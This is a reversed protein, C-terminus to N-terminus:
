REVESYMYKWILEDKNTIDFHIIHDDESHTSIKTKYDDQHGISSHWKKPLNTISIGIKDIIYNTLFEERVLPKDIQNIENLIKIKGYCTDIQELIMTCVDKSMLIVGTNFYNETVATVDQESYSPDILNIFERFQLYEEIDDRLNHKPIIRAAFKPYKLETFICPTQNTVILDTDLWLMHTHSSEKFNRFATYKNFTKSLRDSETVKLSVFKYNNNKCWDKITKVTAYMHPKISDFCIYVVVDNVLQKQTTNLLINM